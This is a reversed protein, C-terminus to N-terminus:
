ARHEAAQEERRLRMLSAIGMVPGLALIAFVHGEGLVDRLTPILQISALTLLFGLAVQVTMATGAYRPDSRESVAASFQASDAVVTTGWVLCLATLLLPAEYLFGASVACLGSVALCGGAVLLRGLRDALRGAVLAGVAGSAVAAFGAWRAGQLSWGAAEYSALLYLPVWTWMAYLEWMHGLYGLNVLRVSRDRLLRGVDRVDFPPRDPLAYPGPRVLGAVLAASAVALGSTTWLVVRWPPMGGAGAGDLGNLLHPLATGVTLAGVLLGMGLGRDERCWTAVLALGPPYVGAQAIGTLFRLALAGGLAGPPLATLAANAAAGLLASGAFIWHTDFRDNITFVASLVAGVVFGLQVAMTLWAQAAPSLGWATTLQPVVASASFWLGKALLTALALFGLTRWKDPPAAPPDLLAM